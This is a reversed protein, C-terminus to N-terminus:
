SYKYDYHNMLREYISDLSNQIQWVGFRGEDTSLGKKLVNGM